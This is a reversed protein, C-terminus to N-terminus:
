QEDEPMPLGAYPDTVGLDDVNGSEDPMPLGAYPDVNELSADSSASEAPAAQEREAIEPTAAINGFARPSRLRMGEVMYRLGAPLERPTPQLGVRALQDAIVPGENLSAFISPELERYLRNGIGGLVAGTPAGVAAGVPGMLGGGIAAGVSAGGGASMYDTPGLSRNAERLTQEGARDAPSASVSLQYARQADAFDQALEPNWRALANQRANVIEARVTRANATSPAPVTQGRNQHYKALGAWRRTERDIEPLTWQRPAELPIEPPLGTAPDILGEFVDAHHLLDDAQAQVAPVTSGRMEAARQRLQAAIESGDVTVGADTASRLVDNRQRTAIRRTAESRAVGTRSMMTEGPQSIGLTAVDDAAAPVGGQMRSVALLNPKGVIGAARLRQVQPDARLPELALDSLSTGNPATAANVAEDIADDGSSLLADQFELDDMPAGRLRPIRGSRLVDDARRGLATNLRARDRAAAGLAYLGRGGEVATALGGGMLAGAGAPTAIDRMLQGGQTPLAEIQEPTLGETSGIPVDLDADTLDVESHGLGSLGGYAAGLLAAGGIRRAATAGQGLRGLPGPIPLAMSGLNGVFQGARATGPFRASLNELDRRYENRGARYANGVDVDAGSVLQSGVNGLGAIEDAFGLSLADAANMRLARNVDPSERRARETNRAVEAQARRTNAAPTTEGAAYDVMGRRIAALTSDDTVPDAPRPATGARSQRFAELVDFDAPGSDPVVIPVRGVVVDTDAEALRRRPDVM